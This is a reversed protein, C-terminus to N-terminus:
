ISYVLTLAVRSADDDFLSNNTIVRSRWRSSLALSMKKNVSYQLAGSVSQINRNNFDYDFLTYISAGAVVGFKRTIGWRVSGSVAAGLPSNKRFGAEDATEFEHLAGVLTPSLAYTFKKHRYTYRATLTVQSYLSADTSTGSTPLMLGGILSVNQSKSESKWISPKLLRLSVDDLEWRDTREADFDFPHSYGVSVDGRLNDNINMGIVGSYSASEEDFEDLGRVASASVSANFKPIKVKANNGVYNPSSPDYPDAQAMVKSGMSVVVGM